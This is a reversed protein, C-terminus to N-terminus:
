NARYLGLDLQHYLGRRQFMSCVVVFKFATVHYQVPSLGKNHLVVTDTLESGLPQNEGVKICNITIPLQMFLFYLM